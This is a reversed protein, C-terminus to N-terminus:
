SDRPHRASMDYQTAVDRVLRHGVEHGVEQVFVAFVDVDLEDDHVPVNLEIV